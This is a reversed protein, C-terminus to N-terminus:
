LQDFDHIVKSTLRRLLVHRAPEHPIRQQSRTAHSAIGTISQHQQLKNRLHALARARTPGIAGFPIGTTRTIETYSRPRDTFLAQLLTRQRPSLEEVITWLTHATDVDMIRQEPDMSPDAIDIFGSPSSTHQAQRLIHLCAHRATSALWGTLREPTHIRHINKALQLWTMQVADLADAHQLRFSRVTATVLKGYRRLIEEWAMPDGNGARSLLEAVAVAQTAHTPPYSTTTMPM